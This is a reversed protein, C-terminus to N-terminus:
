LATDDHPKEVLAIVYELVRCIKNVQLSICFETVKDVLVTRKGEPLLDTKNLVVIMKQCTVEGIVLCEATQTQIGKTIDIVLMM